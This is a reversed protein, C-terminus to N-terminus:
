DNAGQPRFAPGSEGLMQRYVRITAEAIQRHTFHALARTRGREALEARRAPDQALATISESLAPANGEPCVLGADGIVAPIEGCESGIVPIECAMAEVLVRGFQEIWNPRSLSPLVLLDLSRYFDPARASPLRGLFTVRAAIQLEGALAALSSREPGDGMIRLSWERFPLAACARLLVDVGKEPVLRGAYGLVFPDELGSVTIESPSSGAQRQRPSFADPDIGFQPIVTVPGAYGKARLVAMAAGNGAIVHAARRYNAQEFHRFPWPYRRSLNQWSFFLSRAGVSSGARLAHWTALNYPEDDMHLIDPRMRRLLKGLTPYCHLHHRGNLLVPAILMEYGTTHVRELPASDYRGRWGPPLIATLEIGPLRAMEELKRQYEGVVLAKSVMVIRM